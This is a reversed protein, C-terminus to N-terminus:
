QSWFRFLQYGEGALWGLDPNIWFMVQWISRWFEDALPTPSIMLILLIFFTYPRIAVVQRVIEPPLFPELIGFGDLGPLPVLNIFIATIELMVLFAVGAWFEFHLALLGQHWGFVFPVALVLGCLLSAIPGAASILSNTWKSRIVARNVYVAGGPLGIGGILLFVVPFLISLVPHTYKLPNLTLYGQYVVSDDGGLYAVLAHGFEHLAVSIIWGCVVFLFVTRGPNGIGAYTLYGSIAAVIVLLLFIPSIQIPVGRFSLDPRRFRATEVPPTEAINARERFAEATLGYQGLLQGAESRPRRLMGLILLRPDVFDLRHAQAEAAAESLIAASESSLKLGRGSYGIEPPPRNGRAALKISAALRNRLEDPRVRLDALITEAQSGSVQLLGLLLHEPEIVKQKHKKAIRRANKVARNGDRTLPELLDSM